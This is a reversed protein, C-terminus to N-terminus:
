FTVPATNVQVVGHAWHTIAGSNSSTIDVYYRGEDLASMVNDTVSISITDADTISIQSDATSVTLAASTDSAAERFTIEISHGSISVTNGDAPLELTHTWDAYQSLQGILAYRASSLKPAPSLAVTM